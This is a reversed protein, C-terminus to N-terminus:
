NSEDTFEVLPDIGCQSYTLEISNSDADLVSVNGSRIEGNNCYSLDDFALSLMGFEALYIKGVGTWTSAYSQSQDISLDAIRYVQDDAAKLEADIECSNSSDCMRVFNIAQSLSGVKLNAYAKLENNNEDIEGAGMRGNLKIEVGNFELTFQEFYFTQYKTHTNTSLRAYGNATVPTNNVTECYDNATFNFNLYDGSASVTGGCEGGISDEPIQDKGVYSEITDSYNDMASALSDTATDITLLAPEIFIDSDTTVKTGSLFAKFATDVSAGITLSEAQTLVAAETKGIYDFGSNHSSDETSSDSGNGCGVLCGMSLVCAIAKNGIVM